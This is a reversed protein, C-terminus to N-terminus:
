DYLAAMRWEDRLADRVLCCCLMAGDLARAVLDWQEGSWLTPKWWEGSSLWPGYAREVTYRQARFVFAKPKRSELVVAIPEAPRLRRLAFRMGSSATERARVMRVEFPEVRFSDPEHTDKLVARGVNEEGVIARIRALTVDLRSPEPLQPSFLGLQVKSGTGPEAQLTVAVIAAGPPHAELDLHLLKIWLQRDNSPLATRVARAHTAGGELKLVITVAALVFVRATARVILQGLMMNAVFLLTDLAEVPADLEMREVLAFEPEVPQFLHTQEGRALQWLRRGRQGLRAILDKEPLVALMGLTRIGWLAFIEVQEEDLDLVRLPLPGLAAAEEGDAVVQISSHHIPDHHIPKQLSLGRALTIAAHFNSSVAISSAIGLAAARARLDQALEAATGFLRGTGAIDIVCLFVSGGSADEVLPSFCGACEVLAAKAAAEEPLSRALVTVSQFPEVETQSMGPELGLARAHGNLACVQQMPPEGEMAVCARERLEPRLRLLAQVPFEDAYLAAYLGAPPNM